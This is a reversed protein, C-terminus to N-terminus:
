LKSSWRVCLLCAGATGFGEKEWVSWLTVKFNREVVWAVYHLHKAALLSRLLDLHEVLLSLKSATQHASYRQQLHLTDASDSVVQMDLLISQVFVLTAPVWLLLSYNRTSSNRGASPLFSRLLGWWLKLFVPDCQFHVDCVTNMLM